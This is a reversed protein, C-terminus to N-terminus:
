VAGVCFSFGPMLAQPMSSLKAAFFSTKVPAAFVIFHSATLHNLFSL